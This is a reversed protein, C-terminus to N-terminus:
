WNGPRTLSPLLLQSGTAPLLCGMCLSFFWLAQLFQKIWSKIFFFSYSLQNSYVTSNPNNYTKYILLGPIYLCWTFCIRMFFFGSVGLFCPLKLEEVEWLFHQCFFTQHVHVHTTLGLLSNLLYDIKVLFSTSFDHWILVLFHCTPMFFIEQAASGMKLDSIFGLTLEPWLKVVGGVRFAEPIEVGGLLSTVTGQSGPLWGSM